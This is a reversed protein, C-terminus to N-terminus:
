SEYKRYLDASRQFSGLWPGQVWAYGWSQELCEKYVDEATELDLRRGDQTVLSVWYRPEELEIDEPAVIVGGDTRWVRFVRAEIQQIPLASTLLHVSPRSRIFWMAGGFLGLFVLLVGCGKLLRTIASFVPFDGSSWSLLTLFAGMALAVGSILLIQADKM